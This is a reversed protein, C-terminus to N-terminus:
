STSLESMAKWVQARVQMRSFKGAVRGTSSSGTIFISISHGVSKWPDTTPLKVERRPM